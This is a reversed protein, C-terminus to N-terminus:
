KTKKHFWYLSGGIVLIQIFDALLVNPVLRIIGESIFDAILFVVLGVVGWM